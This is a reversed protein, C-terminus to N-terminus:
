TTHHPHRDVVPEARRTRERERLIAAGQSLGAVEEELVDDGREGPDLPVDGVEAAIGVVDGDVAM